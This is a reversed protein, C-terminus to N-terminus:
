INLINENLYICKFICIDYLINTCWVHVKWVHVTGYYVYYTYLITYIINDIHDKWYNNKITHYWNFLVYCNIKYKM